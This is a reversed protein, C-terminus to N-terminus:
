IPEISELFDMVVRTHVDLPPAGLRPASRKEAAKVISHHFVQNHEQFAAFDRQEVTAVIRPITARFKSFHDCRQRPGGRRRGTAHTQRSDRYAAEIIGTNEGPSSDDVTHDAFMPRHAPLAAQWGASM